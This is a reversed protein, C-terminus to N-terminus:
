KIIMRYVIVPLCGPPYRSMVVSGGTAMIKVFTGGATPRILFYTEAL